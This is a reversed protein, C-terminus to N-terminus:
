SAAGKFVLFHVTELSFYIFTGKTPTFFGGFNSRVVCQWGDGYSKDFEKKIHTAISISDSVDYLDHEQSASAMAQNQMKLPMDTEKIMAKGELM